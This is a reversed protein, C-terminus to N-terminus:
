FTLNIGILYNRTTPTNTGIVLLRSQYSPVAQNQNGYSNTEPDMGSANYYPSFLVFANEVTVYLRLKEIGANRIWSFRSFDYGLSITRVKLYSANFYGLTSGYKPNDGSLEGAPYPYQANTNWPTWYNVNVNERRGTLLDLYGASNYLTSILIGGNKFDGVVNFDFGKYAVRTSFGGEFNPDVKIPQMDAAGIARTPTGDANYTGTYQVKIMGVNGGPELISLYQDSAQWIGTKKYDYIVNIPYGVFWWNALDQTEGSALSVLKNRNAYVNIGAEWTWGNLNNLIVGNLSFELGKNQTAGINSMFSSVGSTPPLNVSLLIDNTKTIYYEVTGSLRNKLLSFDLGFNWTKSYEWGLNYNPLQSVYYGMGYTSSGFNQPVASLLGLTSYPPIAQNSTQGFGVRLKLMDIVSVDRMFSENKINWGVSVAPYEHWQHGPALRSSADARFTATIMYRNDYSYMARGMWSMLGYMYYNQSSPSVTTSTGQGLNYFQLYDDPIGLASVYSSNYFTQEASYLAVLNLQHKEAFTHDYTLLNEVAWNTSLSNSIWASSVTTPIGSFVGQGTYNGGNTVRFNLGVNIRYKLGEVGPIKVEGYLSNYSGYAKTLDAWTDGLADMTKRTYVWNQDAAMTVISKMTGDANYPSSIPTTSLVGYLGIDAGNTESYNNNSTFGLRIYKGIEQDVSGRLTYRNFNQLPVVAQDRYYGLGFSYSGKETGGSVGLDHSTVMGTRFFQNQWNTNLSDYEDAGNKFKNAVKRLSDFQPGNMMPYNSFVTKLGFYANYTIHPKQAFQGKNTTILIVGNAGRSGYIATASADKLIDVSKIDSPNLDSISGAYPIGDVVLLPDNSANLSRTGRIRIQMTAGPQTSTPSLEVGPVRGILAQSVDSSPVQRIDDGGISAISGTLDKKKATGYGIVVVENLGTLSESLSVNIVAQGGVTVEKTEYGVFTFTLVSSASSVSITFKGDPGTLVGNITGKELVNVGPMPNNNADVVKGTISRQQSDGSNQSIIGPSAFARFSGGLLLIACVGSILMIKKFCEYIFISRSPKKVM